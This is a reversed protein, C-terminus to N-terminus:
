PRDGPRTSLVRQFTIDLQSAVLEMVEDLEAATVGLRAALGRRAGVVLRDRAAELWRACTSRHVRYLAGLQDITLGHVLHQRLLNRQRPTLSAVAEEFAARFEARYQSRLLALDPATREPPLAASLLVEDLAVESRQDSRERALDIFTRVATMRTWARLGGRGAYDLIRPRREAGGVFLKQWLIQRADDAAIGAPRVRAFARDVDRGYAQDFAALARGEGRACACALYLEGLRGDDIRGGDIGGGPARAALYAAFEERSVSLEPWAQRAREHLAEIGGLGAPEPVDGGM